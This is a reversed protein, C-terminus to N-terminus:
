RQGREGDDLYDELEEEQLGTRMLLKNYRTIADMRAIAIADRLDELERDRERRMTDIKSLLAAIVHGLNTLRPDSEDKVKNAWVTAFQHRESTLAVAIEAPVVIGEVVEVSDDPIFPISHKREQAKPAKAKRTKKQVKKTVM